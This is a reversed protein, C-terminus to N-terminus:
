LQTSYTKTVMTVSDTIVIKLHLKEYQISQPHAYRIELIYDAFLWMGGKLVFYYYLINSSKTTNISTVMAVM